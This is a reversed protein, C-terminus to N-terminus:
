TLRCRPCTLLLVSVGSDSGATWEARARRCRREKWGSRPSLWPLHSPGTVHSSPQTDAHQIARISTAQAPFGAVPEFWRSVDFIGAALPISRAAKGFSWPPLCWPDQLTLPSRVSRCGESSPAAPHSPAAGRRGARKSEPERCVELSGLAKKGGSCAEQEGQIHASAM